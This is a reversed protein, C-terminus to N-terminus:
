GKLGGATLNGMIKNKCALFLIIMPVCAIFCAAMRMTQNANNGSKSFVLLGYSITPYKNLYLLAMNYDNYYQIFIMIAAAIITPRIMPFYIRAMITFHGSRFLM